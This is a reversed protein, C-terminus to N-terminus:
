KSDELTRKDKFSSSDGYGERNGANVTISYDTYKELLTLNVSTQTGDDVIVELKKNNTKKSYTVKYGTIQCAISPVQLVFLM